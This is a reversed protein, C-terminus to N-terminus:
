AAGRERREAYIEEIAPFLDAAIREPYAPRDDRVLDILAGQPDHSYFVEDGVHVELEFTDPLRVLSIPAAYGPQYVHNDVVVCAERRYVVVGRFWRWVVTPPATSADVVVLHHPMIRLRGQIAESFQARLEEPADLWCLTCDTPRVATVVALKLKM